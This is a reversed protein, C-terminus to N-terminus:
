ACRRFASPLLKSDAPPPDLVTRYPEGTAAATQMADYIDLIVRKTRYEGYRIEEKRRVIPFANMIYDVADRSTPFHSTLEALQEPTEVHRSGEAQGAPQWDGREDAPLYLHFFAADIECRLLFRRQEDWRFAPGTWGCESAFPELEWTAYTLELIRPVLWDHVSEGPHGWATAQDLVEPPVFPIQKAIFFSLHTGGVKLRASFDCALSSLLAPLVQLPKASATWVALNHGVAALPFVAGVATRENTSNTIDRFGALWRPTTQQLWQEACNLADDEDRVDPMREFLHRYGAAFELTGSM